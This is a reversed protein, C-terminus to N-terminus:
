GLVTRGCAKFEECDTCDSDSPDYYAEEGFCKKHKPQAVPQEKDKSEAWPPSESKQADERDLGKHLNVPVKGDIEDQSVGWHRWIANVWFRNNREPGKVDPCIRFTVTDGVKISAINYVEYEGSDVVGVINELDPLNEMVDAPIDFEAKNPDISAQYTNYSGNNSKTIKICRGVGSKPNAIDTWGLKLTGDVIQNGVIKGLQLIQLKAPDSPEVVCMYFNLKSMIKGALDRDKEEGSSFLDQVVSCVACPKDYHRKPCIIGKQKGKTKTIFKQSEDPQIAYPDTTM